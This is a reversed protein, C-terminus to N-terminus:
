GQKGGERNRVVAEERRRGATTLRDIMNELLLVPGNEGCFTEAESLVRSLAVAILVPESTGRDRGIRWYDDFLGITEGIEAVNATEQGTDGSSVKQGPIASSRIRKM